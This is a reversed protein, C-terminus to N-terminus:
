AETSLDELTIDTIILDSGEILHMTIEEILDILQDISLEELQDIAFLEETELLVEIEFLEEIVETEPAHELDTEAEEAKILELQFIQAKLASQITM